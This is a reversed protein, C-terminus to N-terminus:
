YNLDPEDRTRLHILLVMSSPKIMVTAIDMIWDPMEPPDSELLMRWEEDNMIENKPVTFEYYSYTGGKTLYLNGDHDQVIVYIVLPNGVAIEKTHGTVLDDTSIDAIVAMPTLSSDVYSSGPTIDVVLEYLRKGTYLIDRLNDSTLEENNLIKISIDTLYEFVDLCREIRDKLGASLLGRADLGGMLMELMSVLRGYIEPYPEVYGYDPFVAPSVYGSYGYLLSDHKLETFSGLTTMIEKDIWAQNLMFGPYGESPTQLLPFLTYIWMWYLNQVWVESDLSGFEERLNIIQEGYNPYTNNESQLLEEARVSGLVSFFDLSQPFNRSDVIPHLLNQFTYYDPTLRQGMIKFTIPREVSPFFGEVNLINEREIAYNIAYSIIEEILTDNALQDNQPAGFGVWINYMEFPTLDLTQGVYFTTPEYIQFWLDQLSSNDFSSCLLLTMLTHEAASESILYGMRGSYMLAQFYSELTENGTYHGRVKYQAFNELYGLIASSAQIEAMINTLETNVMSEVEIPISTTNDLLYLVVTLYAVNKKLAEQVVPETITSNLSIQDARLNTILEKYLDYLHMLELLKLSDDYLWHFTHLCLDTTIFYPDAKFWEYIKYISTYGEDVIVFGYNSLTEYLSPDITLGQFDVNSLDPEIKSPIISPNYDLDQPSFTGFYTSINESIHQNAASDAYVGYSSVYGNPDQNPLFVVLPVVIATILLISLAPIIISYKIKM